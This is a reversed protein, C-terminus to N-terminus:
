SLRAVLRDDELEMIEDLRQQLSREDTMHTAIAIHISPVIFKLLMVVHKRYFLRFPTNKM